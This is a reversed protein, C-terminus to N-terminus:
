QLFDELPRNDIVLGLDPHYFGDDLVHLELNPLLPRLHRMAEVQEFKHSHVNVMFRQLRRLDERKFRPEGPALQRGRIEEIM